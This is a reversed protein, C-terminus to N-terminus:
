VKLKLGDRSDCQQGCDRTALWVFVVLALLFLCATLVDTLVVVVGPEFGSDLLHEEIGPLLWYSRAPNSSSLAPIAKPLVAVSVTGRFGFMLLIVLLCDFARGRWDGFTRGSRLCHVVFRLVYIASILVAFIKLIGSSAMLQRFDFDTMALSLMVLGCNLLGWEIDPQTLWDRIFFGSVFVAAGVVLMRSPALYDIWAKVLEPLRIPFGSGDNPWALHVVAVVFLLGSCILWVWFRCGAFARRIVRVANVLFLFAYVQGLGTIVDPTLDPPSSTM